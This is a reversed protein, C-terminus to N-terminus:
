TNRLEDLLMQEVTNMTKISKVNAAYNNEGTLMDTFVKELSEKSEPNLLSDNIRSPMRNFDSAITNLADISESINM